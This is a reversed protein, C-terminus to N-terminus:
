LKSKLARVARERVYQDEPDLDKIDSQSFYADKDNYYRQRTISKVEVLKDDIAAVIVNRWSPDGYQKRYELIVIPTYNPDALKSQDIKNSQGQYFMLKYTNGKKVYFSVEPPEYEAIGSKNFPREGIRTLIETENKDFFSMASAAVLKTSRDRELNARTLDRMWNKKDHTFYFPISM